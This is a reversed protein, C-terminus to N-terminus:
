LPEFMLAGAKYAQLQTCVESGFFFSFSWELNPTCYLIYSFTVIFGRQLSDYVLLFMLFVLVFCQSFQSLVNSCVV